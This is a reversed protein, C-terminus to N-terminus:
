RKKMKEWFVNAGNKNRLQKIISDSDYAFGFPSASSTSGENNSWASASDKLGHTIVTIMPSDSVTLNDSYFNSLPADVYGQYVERNTSMEAASVTM